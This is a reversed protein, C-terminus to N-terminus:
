QTEPLSVFRTYNGAFFQYTTHVLICNDAVLEISVLKHKGKPLEIIVRKGKVEIVNVQIPKDRGIYWYEGKPIIKYIKNWDRTEDSYECLVNDDKIKLGKLM